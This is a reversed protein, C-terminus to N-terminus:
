KVNYTGLQQDRVLRGGELEIVRKKMEDVINKNHTSVVVTTNRKNIKDLLQLIDWSTAPDLNGTPEDALLIPPNNVIARAICARQKEGGSLEDPFSNVRRLLGVLELAQMTKRRITSRLAGTVRLAFAVNEYVTRKPLLKFDQFVIGINRRLYPIQSADLETVNIRDVIVKGSTPIEDRYLLKMLTTKGAGSSGVLFVFEEKGIHLNIGSLAHIGNTFSKTVNILEIM